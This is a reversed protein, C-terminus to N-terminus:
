IRVERSDQLMAVGERPGVGGKSGQSPTYSGRLVCVGVSAEVVRRVATGSSLRVYLVITGECFERVKFFFFFLVPYLFSVQRLSIGTRNVQKSDLM